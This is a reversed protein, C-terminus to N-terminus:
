DHIIGEQERLGNRNSYRLKLGLLFDIIFHMFITVALNETKMYIFGILFSLAMINIFLFANFLYRYHVLAFIISTIVLGFHTQLVGRFLIEECIAVMAAIFAIQIISKNKFLKENLGGDDYYSKPLVKMFFIDVLVILVGVLGGIYIIRIDNWIFLSQFDTYSDFLFIGVVFSVVSLIAQTALLHFMLERDSIENILERYKNNM